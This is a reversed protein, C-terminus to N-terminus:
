KAPTLYGTVRGSFELTTGAPLGEEPEELVESSAFTCTVKERPSRSAPNGGGKSEVSPDTEDILVTGDPATALFRFDQFSTPVVVRTSGADRAPTFAGNGNVYASFSGASGCDLPVLDGAPAGYSPVTSM